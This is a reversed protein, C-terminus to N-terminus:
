LRSRNQVSTQDLIRRRQRRACARNWESVDTEAAFDRLARHPSHELVTALQALFRPTATTAALRLWHLSEDIRGEDALLSAYSCQGRFDGGEASRRYWQAAAEHDVPTEWGNEHYLGVFNMARAHGHSAAMCFWAFAAARNQEVGRGHALLQAYNYVAWDCGLGAARLFWWAAQGLDTAVGFGYEHCRGIMNMAMPLGAQAASHFWQLAEHANLPTGVGNILLQGLALQSQADGQLALRRLCAVAAAPETRLRAKIEAYPDM